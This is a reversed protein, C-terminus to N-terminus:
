PSAALYWLTTGASSASLGLVYLWPLAGSRRPLPQVHAGLAALGRDGFADRAIWLTPRDDFRLLCGRQAEVIGRVARWPVYREAGAASVRLGAAYLDIEVHRERPTWYDAMARAQWGPWLHGVLLACVYIHALASPVGFYAGVLAAVEVVVATPLLAAHWRGWPRARRLEGTLERPVWWSRASAIPVGLDGHDAGAAPAASDM